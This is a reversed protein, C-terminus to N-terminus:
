TANLMAAVDSRKLFAGSHFEQNMDELVRRAEQYRSSAEPQHSASLAEGITYQAKAILFKFGFKESAQLARDAEQEAARYDKNKLLAEALFVSCEASLYKLGLDDAEKQLSRWEAAKNAGEMGALWNMNIKAALINERDKNRTATQLAQGFLSKASKMDGAYFAREGQDNLTQSISSDDKIDRALSLAEDLTKQSEDGRGLLALTEGYNGLAQASSPSREQIERYGNVSEEESKAAAEYRGQYKFIAAMRDAGYAGMQKNGNSRALQLGQLYYSAAQDFQGLRSSADGLDYFATPMEGTEKLKQLLQLTQQFYTLADDYKATLFYVSGINGLCMAEYNEDNLERQMQLSEKLYKLAEDYRGRDMYIGGFNMLSHSLYVKDGIQRQLQVAETYGAIAQNLNGQSYEVEAIEALARAIGAKQDLRRRITLSEQYNRLAEDPKNLLRYTHGIDFLVRSRLEYNDLQVALTLGRNLYELAGQPNRRENEVEAISV